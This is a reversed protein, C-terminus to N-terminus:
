RRPRRQANKALREGIFAVVFFSSIFPVMLVPSGITDNNLSRFYVEDYKFLLHTGLFLGGMWAPWGLVITVFKGARKVFNMVVFSSLLSVLSVFAIGYYIKM